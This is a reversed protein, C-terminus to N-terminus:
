IICILLAIGWYSKKLWHHKEEDIVDKVDESKSVEDSELEEAELIAERNKNFEKEVEEETLEISPDVGDIDDVNQLNSDTNIADTYDKSEAVLSDIKCYENPTVLEHFKEENGSTIITTDDTLKKLMDLKTSDSISSDKSLRLIFAIVAEKDGLIHQVYSKTFDLHSMALELNLELLTTRDIELEEIKLQLEALMNSLDRKEFQLSQLEEDLDYIEESFKVVEEEKLENLKELDNKYDHGFIKLAILTIIIGVFVSLGVLEVPELSSLFDM